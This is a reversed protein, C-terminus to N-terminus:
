LLDACVKKLMSILQLHIESPHWNQRFTLGISRPNDHIDFPITALLHSDLEWQIQQQSVLTLRHNTQLLRHILVQSSCEIINQPLEMGQIMQEFRERTPTHQPPLIWPYTLIEALRINKQGILPHNIHCAICLSSHFLHQQTTEEPIQNRLAGALFDIKGFRLQQLLDSYPAEIIQLTVEPYQQLFLDISQPLIANRILPMAGITIKGQYQNKLAQIDLKAQRQEALALQIQQWLCQGSKNLLLGNISKDFLPCQLINELERLSRHVAPQSSHLQKAALTFYHHEAVSLFARLQTHTLLQIVNQVTRTPKNKALHQAQQIGITLYQFARQVRYAYVEGEETLVVGKGSRVMLPVNLNASLNALGQSIASQSLFVQQAAQSVNGTEAVAVLARLHKLNFLSDKM